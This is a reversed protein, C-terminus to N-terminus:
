ESDTDPLRAVDTPPKSKPVDIVIDTNTPETKNDTEVAVSGSHDVPAADVDTSPEAVTQDPKAEAVAESWNHPEDYEAMLNAVAEMPGTGTALITPWDVTEDMEGVTIIWEKRQRRRLCMYRPLEKSM